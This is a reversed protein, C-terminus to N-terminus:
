YQKKEQILKSLESVAKKKKEPIKSTKTKTTTKSKM